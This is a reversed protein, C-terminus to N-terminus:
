TREGKDYPPIGLLAEVAAKQNSPMTLLMRKVLDPSLTALHDATAKAEEPPWTQGPRTGVSGDLFPKSSWVCLPCGKGHHAKYNAKSKTTRPTNQAEDRGCYSTITGDPNESEMTWCGSHLPPHVCHTANTILTRRAVIYELGNNKCICRVRSNPLAHYAKLCPHTNIGPKM